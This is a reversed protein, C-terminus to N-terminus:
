NCLVLLQAPSLSVDVVLFGGCFGAFLEVTVYILRCDDLSCTRRCLWELTWSSIRLHQREGAYELLCGGRM